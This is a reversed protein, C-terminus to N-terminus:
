TFERDVTIICKYDKHIKKTEDSIFNIIEDDSIKKNSADPTIVVDFVLSKKEGKGIIRFDHISKIVPNKSIIQKIIAKASKVEDEEISIPDMHIVLVIKLKESIEREATDIVNHITMIDINAPIEAHISAMFNGVGYNHIILDHVGTIYDYSLLEKKINNVLEADPSEGLLPSITEKLLKYGAYLIFLSVFLGVYGDLPLSTFKAVVFSILVISSAFVDGLSDFASIELAKSNIKKGVFKNFFSLWIKVLITIILLVLALIDFHVPTPSLIRTISSKAFDLGVLLIIFSMILSAIYESRGHGFPHEKDPPINSLRFGLITIVSSITDSLNNFADATIAISGTIIGVFLKIFFLLLNFIIGVVGAFYGYKDRVSSDQINESDKIFIKILLKSLM